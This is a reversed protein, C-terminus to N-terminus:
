RRAKADFYLLVFTIGLLPRLVAHLLSSCVYTAITLADPAPAHLLNQMLATVQEVSTVGWIRVLLFPLEVAASTVLLIVLWLSAFLAGRYLPRELSPADPRARALERSDHLAEVGQLGGLTASQQWFLFNIFLRGVMYIQVALAFLALLLLLVSAGSGAIALIVLLPLATWFTYSGYVVISLKAMRPWLGTARRILDPLRVARGALLDATAFQLGALFVPWAALILALLLLAITAPLMSEPTVGGGEARRVFAFSVQMGFSPVAVLLALGFLQPFGRRYVGFADRLIQGISRSRVLEADASAVPEATAFLEPFQDAKRWETTDAERVENEPILRGERQWDRLTDLDVPGYEKGHVRVVWEDSM